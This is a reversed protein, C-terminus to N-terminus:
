PSDPASGHASGGLKEVASALKEHAVLARWGVVMWFITSILGLVGGCIAISAFGSMGQVTPDLPDEKQIPIKHNTVCARAYRTSEARDGGRRHTVKWSTRM